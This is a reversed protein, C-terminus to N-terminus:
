SVMPPSMANLESTASALTYSATVDLGASMRRRLALILADYRSTGKSLAVRFIYPALYKLATEGTGVPRCDIVWDHAWATSPIAAYSPTQRLAARLKARFLVALVLRLM